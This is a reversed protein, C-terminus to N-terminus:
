VHVDLLFPLAIAYKLIKSDKPDDGLNACIDRVKVRVALPDAKVGKLYESYNQGKHRTLAKVAQVVNAPIGEEALREAPWQPNDESVDHLWATAVGDWDGIDVFHQAVKAPHEIYAINNPQGHLNKRYQGRHAVVAIERAKTVYLPELNKNM